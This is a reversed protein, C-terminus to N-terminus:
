WERTGSGQYSARKDTGGGSLNLTGSLVNGTGTNNCEGSITSTGPGATKQVTGANDFRASTGPDSPNFNSAFINAGDGTFSLTAGLVNSLVGAALNGTSTPNLNIAATAAVTSNTGHLEVVRGDDIGVSNTIAANGNVI